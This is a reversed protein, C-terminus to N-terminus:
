YYLTVGIFPSLWSRFKDFVNGASTGSYNLGAELAVNYNIEWIVGAGAQVGVTVDEYGSCIASGFGDDICQDWVNVLVEAHIFPVLATPNLFAYRLGGTFFVNALSADVFELRNGMWGIGGEISLGRGLEWGVRGHIGIGPKLLDNMDGLWLPVFLTAGYQLGRGTYSTEPAPQQAYPQAAPQGYPQPEAPQQYQQDYPEQPYQQPPPPPANPDNYQVQGQDYGGPPPEAFAVASWGFFAVLAIFHAYRM